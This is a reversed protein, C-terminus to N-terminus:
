PNLVPLEIFIIRHQRSKCGSKTYLLLRANMIGCFQVAVPDSAKGQRALESDM